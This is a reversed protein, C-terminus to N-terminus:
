KSRRSLQGNGPVRYHVGSRLLRHVDIAALAIQFGPLHLDALAHTLADLNERPEPMTFANHRRSRKQDIGFAPQPRAHRAGSYGPVMISRMM